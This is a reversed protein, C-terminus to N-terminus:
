GLGPELEAHGGIAQAVLRHLGLLGPLDGAPPLPRNYKTFDTRVSDMKSFTRNRLDNRAFTKRGNQRDHATMIPGFEKDQKAKSIDPPPCLRAGKAANLNRAKHSGNLGFSLNIQPTKLTMEARKLM